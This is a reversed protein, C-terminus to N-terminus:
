AAEQQGREALQEYTMEQGLQELEAASWRLRHLVHLGIARKGDYFRSDMPDHAVELIGSERILDRLVIQGEPSAFARQYADALDLRKQLHPFLRRIDGRVLFERLTGIM